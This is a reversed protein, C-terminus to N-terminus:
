KRPIAARSEGSNEISDERAFCTGALVSLWILLYPPLGCCLMEMGHPLSLDLLDWVYFLGVPLPVNVVFTLIRGMSAAESDGYYSLIEVLLLLICIMGFVHVKIRYIKKNLTWMALFFCCICWILLVALSICLEQESIDLFVQPILLMDGLIWSCVLLAYLM